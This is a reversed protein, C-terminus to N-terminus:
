GEGYVALCGEGKFGMEENRRRIHEREREDRRKHEEQCREHSVAVIFLRPGSTETGEDVESSLVLVVRPSM